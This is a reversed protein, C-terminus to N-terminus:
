ITVKQVRMFINVDAVLTFYHKRPKITNADYVDRILRLLGINSGINEERVHVPIFHSLGGSNSMLTDSWAAPAKDVRPKPPVNNVQMSTCLATDYRTYGYQQEKRMLESVKKIPSDAITLQHAMRTVIATSTGRINTNLTMPPVVPSSPLGNALQKAQVTWNVSRYTGKALSHAGTAYGRNFNDWWWVGQTSENKRIFFVFPHILLSFCDKILCLSAFTTLIFVLDNKKENKLM